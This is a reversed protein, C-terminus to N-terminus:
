GVRKGDSQSAKVEDRAKELKQGKVVDLAAARQVDL